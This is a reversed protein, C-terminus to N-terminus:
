HESVRNTPVLTVKMKCILFSLFLSTVPCSTFPDPIQVRTVQSPLEHEESSHQAAEPLM